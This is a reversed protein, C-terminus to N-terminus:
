KLSSDKWVISQVKILRTRVVLTVSVLLFRLCLFQGQIFLSWHRVLWLGPGLCPESRAGKADILPNWLSAFVYFKQWLFYDQM